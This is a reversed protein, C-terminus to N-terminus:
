IRYFVYLSESFPVLTVTSGLIMKSIPKESITLLGSYSVPNEKLNGTTLLTLFSLPSPSMSVTSLNIEM